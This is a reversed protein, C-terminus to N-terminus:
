RAIETVEIQEFTGNDYVTLRRKGDPTQQIQRLSLIEDAQAQTGKISLHRNVSIHLTALRAGGSITLEGDRVQVVNDDVVGVVVGNNTKLTRILLHDSVDLVDVGEDTRYYARTGSADWALPTGEGIAMLTGASTDLIEVLDKEQVADRVRVLLRGSGDPSPIPMSFYQKYPRWMSVDDSTKASVDEKNQAAHTLQRAQGNALIISYINSPYSSTGGSAVFYVTDGASSFIPDSFVTMGDKTQRILLRENRKETDLIYLGNDAGIYVLQRGNPSLDAGSGLYTHPRTIVVGGAGDSAVVQSSAGQQANLLPAGLCIFLVTGCLIPSIRTPV